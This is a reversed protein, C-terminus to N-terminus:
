NVYFVPRKSQPRIDSLDENSVVEIAGNKRLIRSRNLEEGALVYPSLAFDELVAVTEGSRKDNKEGLIFHNWEKSWHFQQTVTQESVTQFTADAPINKAQRDSSQSFTQNQVTDIRAAPGSNWTLDSQQKIKEWQSDGASEGQEWLRNWTADIDKPFNLILDFAGDNWYFGRIFRNKEFAGIRQDAFETLFIADVGSQDIPKFEINEIAFFSGLNGLYEYTDGVPTYVAVLTDKPVLSVAVVIEEGSDGYVNGRYIQVNSVDKYNFDEQRGMDAIVNRAIEEQGERTTLDTTKTIGNSVGYIKATFGLAMVVVVLMVTIWKKKM